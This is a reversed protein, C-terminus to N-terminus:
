LIVWSPPVLLPGLPTDEGSVTEAVTYSMIQFKLFRHLDGAAIPKKGHRRVWYKMRKENDELDYQANWDVMINKIRFGPDMRSLKDAALVMYAVDIQEGFRRTINDHLFEPISYHTTTDGRKVTFGRPEKKFAKQLIHEHFYRKNRTACGNDLSVNDMDDGTIHLMIPRTAHTVYLYKDLEAMLKGSLEQVESDDWNTFKEPHIGALALVDVLTPAKHRVWTVSEISDDSKFTTFRDLALVFLALQREDYPLDAVAQHHGPKIGYTITDGNKTTLTFGECAPHPEDWSLGNTFNIHNLHKETLNIELM